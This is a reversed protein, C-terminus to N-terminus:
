RELEEIVLRSRDVGGYLITRWGVTTHVFGITHEGPAVRLTLDCVLPGYSNDRSGTWTRVYVQDCSTRTTGDVVVAVHVGADLRNGNEHAYTYTM